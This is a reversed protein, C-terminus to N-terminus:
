EKLCRGMVWAFGKATRLEPEKFHNGQNWELTCDKGAAKLIDEAERIAEGVRAMVPNRTKEEKNGLSLYVADVRPPNERLFDTFDPYWMSPSAAAIGAFLDTQTGAWLAFLASLSYGGIILQKKPGAGPDTLSPIVEELLSGLTAEAGGGFDEKGFVAPAPWPSLDGNWDGTKVAALLFDEGSLERILEAERELSGMDHEGVMQLLVMEAEPNGYRYIQFTNM